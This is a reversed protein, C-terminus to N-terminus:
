SRGHGVGLADRIADGLMAFALVTITLAIGPGWILYTKDPRAAADALMSGWSATPPPVGLGLFSLSAEALIATGLVFTLQVIIPPMANPMIHAGLIRRPRCGISAASRVFLENKLDHTAVRALYFFRPIMVMGVALMASLLGAGLSTVVGIALVLGPVSLLSNNLFTLLRDWWKGRYGAVLGMPVGIVFAVGSAIAGALLSIRTGFILRSLVDRGLADTGLRHLASPGQLPHLLDQRNPDFPALLPAFVATLILLLIVL